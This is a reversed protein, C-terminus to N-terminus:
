DMMLPDKTSQRSEVIDSIIKEATRSDDWAGFHKNIMESTLSKKDVLGLESSEILKEGLWRKNQSSLALSNIFSLIGDLTITANMVFIKKKSCLYYLFNILRAFFM